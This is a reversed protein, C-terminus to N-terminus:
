LRLELEKVKLRKKLWKRIKRVEEDELPDSVELVVLVTPVAQQISDMFKLSNAYTCSRVEPYLAQLENLLDKGLQPAAKLSDLSHEKMALTRRLGEIEQRRQLDTNNSSHSIPNELKFGQEIILKTEELGLNLAKKELRQLSLTDFEKGAYVLYLSDLDASLEHRLLYNGEWYEVEELFYTVRTKFKEVKVLTFGLYLSPLVTLGIVVGVAINKHKIERSLLHTQRPLKLLQSVLMAALAIFVSNITFLYLAGLVYSWNGISIGYGATCLPPILATAIAVGPLVNGKNKSSLALIGALGGFMAIFVDYITPSTRALLESHETHIPSLAFYLTSTLLGATTAFAFNGLSKRLLPFNYTAVSYGVGNIPGMLPSILMAGIIVATSNMNLGVSAILVAFILIWLNTGHFPIAKEITEHILADEEKEHSLRLLSLLNNLPNRESM